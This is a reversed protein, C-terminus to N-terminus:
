IRLLQGRRCSSVSPGCGASEEPPDTNLLSLRELDFGLLRAGSAGEAEHGPNEDLGSEGVAPGVFTWVRVLELADVAAEGEVHVRRRRDARGNRV